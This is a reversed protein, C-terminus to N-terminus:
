TSSSARRAGRDLPLRVPLFEAPDCAGPELRRVDDIEASLEGRFRELAAAAHVADGREFRGALRDADRFVRAPITGTRDRLELALYPSATERRDAPGQPRLRLARQLAPGARLEAVSQTPAPDTLQRAAAEMARSSAGREPPSPGFPRQHPRTARSRVDTPEAAHIREHPLSLRRLKARGARTQAKAPQFSAALAAVVASSAAPRHREVGLQDRLMSGSSNKSKWALRGVIWRVSPWVRSISHGSFGQEGRLDGPASRSRTRSLPVSGFRRQRVKESAIASAASRQADLSTTVRPASIASTAWVRGTGIM